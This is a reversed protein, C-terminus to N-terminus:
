LKGPDIKVVLARSGALAASNKFFIM